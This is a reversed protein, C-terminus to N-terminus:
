DGKMGLVYPRIGLVLLMGFPSAYGYHIHQAAGIVV